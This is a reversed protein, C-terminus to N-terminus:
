LLFLPMPKHEPSEMKDTEWTYEKEYSDNYREEAVIKETNDYLTIPLEFMDAMMSSLESLPASMNERFWEMLLHAVAGSFLAYKYLLLHPQNGNFSFNDTNSLFSKAIEETAIGELGFELMKQLLATHKKFVLSYHEFIDDLNGKEEFAFLNKFFFRLIDEKSNFFNYFTQRSLSASQCIDFVSIQHYNREMLLSVLADALRHQSQLAKPNTGTYM